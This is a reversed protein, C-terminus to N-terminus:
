TSPSSPRTYVIKGELVSIRNNDITIKGIDSRDEGQWTVAGSLSYGRPSLIRQVIYQIWEVYNYFKEGGDWAITQKDEENIQWQCWLSPQTSPPSNYDIITKDPTQGAFGAGEIYFEGEVGYEPGVRRKMRRTNNLGVLLELTNDDLPRDTTFRGEFETTYGM